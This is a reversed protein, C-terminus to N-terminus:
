SKPHEKKKPDWLRRRENDYEDEDESCFEGDDKGEECEENEDGGGVPHYVTRGVRYAFFQLFITFDFLLTGASGAIYPINAVLAAADRDALYQFLIAACYTSNGLVSFIFLWISLGETSKALHQILHL